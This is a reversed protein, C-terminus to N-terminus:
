GRRCRRDSSSQATGARAATSIKRRSLHMTLEARCAELPEVHGYRCTDLPAGRLSRGGRRRWASDNPRAARCQDFPQRSLPTQPCGAHAGQFIVGHAIPFHLGNELVTEVCACTACCASSRGSCSFRRPAPWLLDFRRCQRASYDSLCNIFYIRCTMM